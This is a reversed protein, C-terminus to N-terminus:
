PEAPQTPNEDEIVEAIQDLELCASVVAQVNHTTLLGMQGILEETIRYNTRLLYVALEYYEEFTKYGDDGMAEQFWSDVYEAFSQYEAAPRAEIEGTESNRAFARPIQKLTPVSWDRGDGLTVPNGKIGKSRKLDIPLPPKDNWVGVWYRGAELGNVPAAPTWTQEDPLYDARRERNEGTNHPMDYWTCMVGKATGDKVPGVKGAHCTLCEGHDSLGVADLTIKGPKNAHPIFILPSTM